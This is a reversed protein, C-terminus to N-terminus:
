EGDSFGGKAMFERLAQVPYRLGRKGIRVAQIENQRTLEGLQRLSINFVKTVQHSTFLTLDSLDVVQMQEPTM